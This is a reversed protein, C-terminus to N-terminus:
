RSLFAVHCKNCSAIKTKNNKGKSSITELYTCKLSMQRSAMNTASSTTDWDAVPFPPKPNLLWPRPMTGGVALFLTEGSLTIEVVRPRGAWVGKYVGVYKSLIEPALKVASAQADSVTGTWHQRGSDAPDCRTDAMETDAALQATAHFALPHSYAAPDRLIAEIELHGFDIRRYRETMRLAETHRYGRDNLWIRDNFGASEVVLTDGDWRGVSYGMWGPNPETEPTRGDMFIQRYTLDDNLIAIMAPTQLIRRMVGVDFATPAEPLCLYRPKDKFFNDSRQQILARAWPQAEDLKLDDTAGFRTWLGTLDPKGDSTRPAPATLYRPSHAPDWVHSIAVVTGRPTDGVHDPGDGNTQPCYLTEVHGDESTLYGGCCRFSVVKSYEIPSSPQFPWVNAEAGRDDRCCRQTTPM